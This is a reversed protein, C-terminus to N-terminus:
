GIKSMNDQVLDTPSAAHVQSSDAAEVTVFAVECATTPGSEFEGDSRRTVVM